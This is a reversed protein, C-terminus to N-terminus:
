TKKKKRLRAITPEVPKGGIQGREYAQMRREAEHAAELLDQEDELSALLKEAGAARSKRPLGLAAQVISKTTIM